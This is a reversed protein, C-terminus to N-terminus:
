RTRRGTGAPSDGPPAELGSRAETRPLFAVTDGVVLRLRPDGAVQGPARVVVVPGTVARALVAATRFLLTAGHWELGSKSRGM